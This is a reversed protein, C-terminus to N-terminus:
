GNAEISTHAANKKERRDTKLIIDWIKTFYGYNSTFDRHHDAHDISYMLSRYRLRWARPVFEYGWHALMNQLEILLIASIIAYLHMPLFAAIFLHCLGYLAIEVYHFHAVGYINTEVLEHHVRHIHRFLFEHHLIRHICYFWFDFILCYLLISIVFYVENSVIAVAAPSHALEYYARKSFTAMVAAALLSLIANKVLTNKAIQINEDTVLHARFFNLKALLGRVLWVKALYLVAQRALISFFLFFVSDVQM